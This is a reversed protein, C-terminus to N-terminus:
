SFSRCTPNARKWSHIVRKSVFVFEWGQSFSKNQIKNQEKIHLSKQFYNSLFFWFRLLPGGFVTQLFIRWLPSSLFNNPHSKLIISDTHIIAIRCLINLFITCNPRPTLCFQSCAFKRLFTSFQGVSNYVLINVEYASVLRVFPHRVIIFGEQLEWM